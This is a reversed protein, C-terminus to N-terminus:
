PEFTLRYGYKLKKTDAIVIIHESGRNPYVRMKMHPHGAFTRAVQEVDANREVPIGKAPQYFYRASKAAGLKALGVTRTLSIYDKAM